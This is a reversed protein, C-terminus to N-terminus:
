FGQNGKNSSDLDALTIDAAEEEGGDIGDAGYCILDYRRNGTGGRRYLYENGWPDRPTGESELYPGKWNNANAPANILDELTGPYTGNDIKFLQIAKKINSFDTLVKTRRAEGVRSTVSVVVVSALVGIIAIVVMLEVLSFGRQANVTMARPRQM